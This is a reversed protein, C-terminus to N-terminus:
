KERHSRAAIDSGSARQMETRAKFVAMQVRSYANAAADGTTEVSLFIVGPHLARVRAQVGDSVGSSPLCGFPKVSVVLDCEHREAVDVLKAVELHGEGGRLEPSYHEEALRALRAMDPLPYAHLGTAAAFSRFISRILKDAAWLRVLRFLPRKDALGQRGGDRGPLGMRRRTDWRGQWALYLLWATLPQIVVEAGEAELFRQLRYNGDGETTIAWFEGIVAAKPRKVGRDTKIAALLPRCRRFAAAISKRQEFAQEVLNRSLSLSADTSGPTCEYPRIRYGILNLVDAAIMAAVIDRSLRRDFVIGDGSGCVQHSGGKQELLIVRFGEFGSERLARRYETIYSGFRCPGCAAATLFVYGAIIAGTSMGQEDRLKQLHRILGGVMFYTPNCQGRGCFEKGTNFAQRDPEPIAEGQYGAGRLAAAVFANATSSLGGTLVVTTPKEAHDFCDYVVERYHTVTGDPRNPSPPAGPLRPRDYPM